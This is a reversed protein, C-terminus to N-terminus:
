LSSLYALLAAQDTASLALFADRSRRAEGDHAAIADRLTAARGDHLYPGSQAVGWLPATRFESGTADGQGIGDGLSGMDHLLFDSFARVRRHNLARVPSPGTRLRTSHCGDCRLRRFARRGLLAEGSLQAVPPPALLSMFDVFARISSGNDEPDDVEDCIVAGGQPKVEEPFAPSTIGMENLYAEGAFTTLDAVQAKWGFRGVRGGIMNPRGSIGDGDRDAPDAYRLIQGDPIGEVLGLGFLAPTDRRTAVTAETPVTEGPVVCSGRKIGQAQILSGGYEVMPDFVGGVYRGFRTVFRESSGGIVPHNHCEACSAGNFVPGLGRAPTEIDAFERLGVGFRAQEEATLGDSPAPFCVEPHSQDPNPFIPCNDVADCVGDGDRDQASPCAAHALGACLVLALTV